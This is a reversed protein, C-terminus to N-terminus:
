EEVNHISQLLLGNDDQAFAPWESAFPSICDFSGKSSIAGDPKSVDEKPCVKLNRLSRTPIGRSRTPKAM